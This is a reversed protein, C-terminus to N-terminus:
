FMGMPSTPLFDWYIFLLGLECQHPLFRLIPFRSKLTWGTDGCPYPFEVCIVATDKDSVRSACRLKEARQPDEWGAKTHCCSGYLLRLSSGPCVTIFIIQM